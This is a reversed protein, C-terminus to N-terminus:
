PLCPGGPPAEFALQQARNREILSLKSALADRILVWRPREPGAGAVALNLLAYAVVYDQPVGQGKDYMLGLFYQARPHGQQSACRYWGVAVMFNQPVGLGHAYMYGLYTQANADGEAALDTFIRSALAYEQASLARIARRLSDAAAPTAYVAVCAFIGLLAWFLRRRGTVFSLWGM